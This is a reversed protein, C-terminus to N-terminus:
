RGGNNKALPKWFTFLTDASALFTETLATHRRDLEVLAPALTAQSEPGHQRAFDQLSTRLVEADQIDGLSGQYANM